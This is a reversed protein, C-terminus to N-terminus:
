HLNISPKTTNFSISAQHVELMNWHVIYSCMLLCWMNIENVCTTVKINKTWKMSLKCWAKNLYYFLEQENGLEKNTLDKLKKWITNKDQRQCLLNLKPAM